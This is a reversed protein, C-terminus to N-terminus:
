PKPSPASSPLPTVIFDFEPLRINASPMPAAAARRKADQERQAAKAYEVTVKGPADPNVGGAHILVVDRHVKHTQPSYDYSLRYLGSIAKGDATRIFAQQANGFTLADFGSNKSSVGARVRSVQGYRNVEVTYTAHMAKKPYPPPTVRIKFTTMVPHPTPQAAAAVPIVAVLALGMFLARLRRPETLEALHGRVVVRLCRM